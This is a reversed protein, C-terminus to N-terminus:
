YMNSSIFNIKSTQNRIERYNTEPSFGCPLSCIVHSVLVCKTTLNYVNDEIYLALLFIYM